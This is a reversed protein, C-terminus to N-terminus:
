LIEIELPDVANWYENVQKVLTNSIHVNYMYINNQMAWFKKKTATSILFYFPASKAFKDAFRDLGM